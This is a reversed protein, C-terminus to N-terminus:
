VGCVHHGRGVTTAFKVAVVVLDLTATRGPKALFERRVERRGPTQRRLKEPRNVPGSGFKLERKIWLIYM